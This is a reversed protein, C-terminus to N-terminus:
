IRHFIPNNAAPFVHDVEVVIGKPLLLQVDFRLFTFQKEGLRRHIWDLVSFLHDLNAVRKLPNISVPVQIAKRNLNQM